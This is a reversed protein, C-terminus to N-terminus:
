QDPFGLISKAEAFLISREELWHILIIFDHFGCFNCLLPNSTETYAHHFPHHIHVVSEDALQLLPVLHFCKLTLRETVDSEKHGCPSYGALNRQGHFERPLFSSDTAM